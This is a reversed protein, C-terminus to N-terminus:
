SSSSQPLISPLFVPKAKLPVDDAAIFSSKPEIIQGDPMQMTHHRPNKVSGNTEYDHTLIGRGGENFGGEYQFDSTAGGWLFGEPLKKQDM